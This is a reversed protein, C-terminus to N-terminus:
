FSITASYVGYLNNWEAQVDLPITGACTPSNYTITYKNSLINAIQGFVDTLDATVGNYYQGGTERALRQMNLLGNAIEDQTYRTYLPDVYYITFIPIGKQNAYAIVDGIKTADAPAIGDSLVVVARKDESGQVAREISAHLATFLLTSSTNGFSADIYLNLAAKGPGDMAFFLPDPPDPYLETSLNFKCIAAYDTNNLLSIFSKAATQITDLVGLESESFDLALVVSVPSPYSYQTATIGQVQGGNEYVKFNQETLSDIRSGPNTPDTVTVDVKISACNSSDVKNIWVNLGYGEGQLSINVMSSDPDNSPISITGAFPAQITPAFRVRLSCKQSPTLTKNSCADGDAPITFPPTPGSNSIQGISLNANGTNTIEVTQDVSNKLVVGAFDLSSKSTSINPAPTPSSNSSGGGGGSGCGMFLFITLGFIAYCAVLLPNERIRKMAMANGERSRYNKGSGGV